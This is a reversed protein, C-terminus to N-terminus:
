RYRGRSDRGRREGYSSGDQGDGYSESRMGMRNGRYSVERMADEFGDYYGEEYAEKDQGGKRSGEIIEWHRM